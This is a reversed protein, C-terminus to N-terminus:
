RVGVTCAAIRRELEAIDEPCLQRVRNYKAAAEQALTKRGQGPEELLGRQKALPLFYNEKPHIEARVEKWQWGKPLTQGALVWVEIEQWANVALFRQPTGLMEAALREIEDLRTQRGAKGDRDVCLLFLDIMGRYRSVISRLQEWNTAQDVGGLLPDRCVVVTARPKGIAKMLADVIPQLMYQDKRFDEPIVLVRM